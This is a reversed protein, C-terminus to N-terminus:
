IKGQHLSHHYKIQVRKSIMLTLFHSAFKHRVLKFHKLGQLLIDMRLQIEKGPLSVKSKIITLLSTVLSSLKIRNWQKLLLKQQKKLM